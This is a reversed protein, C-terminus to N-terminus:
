IMKNTLKTIQPPMKLRSKKLREKCTRSNHGAIKNCSKCMSVGLPRGGSDLEPEPRSNKEPSKEKAAVKKNASKSEKKRGKTNSVPPPLITDDMNHVAGDAAHEHEKGQEEGRADNIKEVEEEEKIVNV